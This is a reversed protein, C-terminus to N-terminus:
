EARFGPRRGHKDPPNAIVRVARMIFSGAKRPEKPEEPFMWDRGKPIEQPERYGYLAISQIKKETDHDIKHIWQRASLILYISRQQYQGKFIYDVNGDKDARLTSTDFEKVVEQVQHQSIMTASAESIVRQAATVAIRGDQEDLNATVIGNRFSAMPVLAFPRLHMKDYYSDSQLDHICSWKNEICESLSKLVGDNYTDIMELKVRQESSAIKDLELHLMLEDNLRFEPNPSQEAM